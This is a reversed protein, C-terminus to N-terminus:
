GAAAIPGADGIKSAPFSTFEWDPRGRTIHAFMASESGASSVLRLNRSAKSYLLRVRGTAGVVGVPRYATGRGRGRRAAGYRGGCSRPYATQSGGPM